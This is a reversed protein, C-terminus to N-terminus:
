LEFWWWWGLQKSMECVCQRNVGGGCTQPAVLLLLTRGALEAGVTILVARAQVPQTVLHRAAALTQRSVGAGAALVTLEREVRGSGRTEAESRSTM